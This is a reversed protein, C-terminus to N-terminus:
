RSPLKKLLNEVQELKKQGDHDRGARYEALAEEVWQRCQNLLPSEGKETATLQL